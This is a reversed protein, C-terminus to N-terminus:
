VISMIIDGYYKMFSRFDRGDWKFYWLGFMRGYGM